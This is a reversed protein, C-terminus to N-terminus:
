MHRADGSGSAQAGWRAGAAGQIAFANVLWAEFAVVAPHEMAKEPKLLYYSGSPCTTAFPKVLRGSALAEFALLNDGVAVGQGEAAADLVLSSDHYVLGRTWDVGEVGALALWRRWWSTDQEHLLRCNCLDAPERLGGEDILRPSCVPFAEVTILWVSRVTPEPPTFSYHIAADARGQSFAALDLSPIIEVDVGPAIRHFHELRANLWRAALGPDVSLVLRGNERGEALRGTAAAVVRAAVPVSIAPSWVLFKM